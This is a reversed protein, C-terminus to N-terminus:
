VQVTPETVLDAEADDPLAGTAVLGDDACDGDAILEDISHEWVAPDDLDGVRHDRFLVLERSGLKATLTVEHSPDLDGFSVRVIGEDRDALVILHRRPDIDDGTLEVFVDDPLQDVVDEPWEIALDVTEAETSFDVPKGARKVWEPYATSGPASNKGPPKPQVGLKADFLFIEVRRNDADNVGDGTDDVPFNEGCGHTAVDVDDPLSTGELAMYEKILAHRTEEGAIDDVKLGRTRQFWHVPNESGERTDADPLSEIMALDERNGWRKDSAVDKGYWAYWDEVKGKLYAAMAEARERSLPDNYAPKGATDTHGVVLLVTDPHKAQLEVLGRVGDIGNPLVFSKSTDFFGGLLRGQVVYPQISLTCPKKNKLELTPLEDSLRCVEVDSDPKIRPKDRVEDWRARLLKRAAQASAVTVSAFEGPADDVRAKGDGDTNKSQRNGEINFAMELGSVADGVEDIVCVEFLGNEPQMLKKMQSPTIAPEDNRGAAARVPVRRLLILGDAQSFPPRWDATLKASAEGLLAALDGQTGSEKALSDLVRKAEDRSAVEFDNRGLTKALDLDAVLRYQRGAYNLKGRTSTEIKRVLQRQQTTTSPAQKTAKPDKRMGVLRGDRICARVLERLKDDNVRDLPFSSLRTASVFYRLDAFRHRDLTDFLWLAKDPDAQVYEGGQGRMKLAEFSPVLVVADEDM